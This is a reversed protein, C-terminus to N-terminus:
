GQVRGRKSVPRGWESRRTSEQLEFGSRWDELDGHQLRAGSRKRWDEVEGGRNWSAENSKNIEQGRKVILRRRSGM